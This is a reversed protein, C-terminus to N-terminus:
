NAQIRLEQQSEDFYFISYDKDPIFARRPSFLEKGNESMLGNQPFQQADCSIRGTSAGIQFVSTHFRGDILREKFGVAYTTLYKMLHRLEKILTLFRKCTEDLNPISLIQNFSTENVQEVEM